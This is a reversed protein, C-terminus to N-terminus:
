RGRTGRSPAVGATAPDAVPDRARIASRWDADLQELTLGDYRAALAAVTTKGEKLDEIFGAFRSRGRAALHAIVSQAVPYEHVEIPGTGRLLESVPWGYRVFQRALLEANEGTPCRDALIREAMLDAFGENIWHPILKSRFLRHVFAHTGEHVLTCAFRDFDLETGGTRLLAVHVHGNKEISRTYGAAGVGDYGDFYRAFHQFRSKSRFCFVPCKALFVDALPDLDFQDCLASYMSECRRILRDHHRRNWDTWILFHESELGVVARGLVEEVKAGFTRYATLVKDSQEPTPKPALRPASPLGPDDM